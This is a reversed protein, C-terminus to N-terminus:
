SPKSSLNDSSFGDPFNGGPPYTAANIIPTNIYGFDLVGIDLSM